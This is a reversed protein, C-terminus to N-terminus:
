VSDRDLGLQHFDAVREPLLEGLPRSAAIAWFGPVNAFDMDAENVWIGFTRGKRHVTAIGEPGRALAPGSFVPAALLSAAGLCIAAVLPRLRYSPYPIVGTM